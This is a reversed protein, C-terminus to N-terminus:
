PAGLFGGPPPFPGPPYIIPGDNAQQRLGGVLGFRPLRFTMPNSAAIKLNSELQEAPITTCPGDTGIVFNYFYNGSPAQALASNTVTVGWWANDPMKAASSTWLPGSTPNVANGFWQGILNTPLNLGTRLPDAYLSYVLQRTGLDWHKKGAGDVGGTDGDFLNVDFTAAGAPAALGIQVTQEFTALGACGFALFRGDTADQSPFAAFPGPGIQATAAGLGFVAALAALVFVQRVTKMTRGREWARTFICSEPCEPQGPSGPRALVLDFTSRALTGRSGGPRGPAGRPRQGSKARLPPDRRATRGRPAGGVLPGPLL